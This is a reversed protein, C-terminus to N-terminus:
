NFRNVSAYAPEPQGTYATVFNTYAEFPELARQRKKDDTLWKSVIEDNNLPVLLDKPLMETITERKLDHNGPVMFLRDRGVGVAQLVPELLNDRAAEFEEPFGFYALDGSFVVFDVRELRPDISKRNTLDDILKDRVVKQNFDKGRQHWDSLHLWTLHSM